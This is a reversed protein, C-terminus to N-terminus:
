AKFVGPLLAPLQSLLYLAQNVYPDSNLDGSSGSMGPLTTVM